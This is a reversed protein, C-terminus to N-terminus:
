VALGVEGERASVGKLPITFYFTTGKGVMTEFWVKGGLDDVVSKVLSLGLGTGEPVMRFANSINTISLFEGRAIKAELSIPHARIIVRHVLLLDFVLL